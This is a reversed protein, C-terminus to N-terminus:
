ANDCMDQYRKAFESYETEIKVIDNYNMGPDDWLESYVSMFENYTLSEHIITVSSVGTHEYSLWLSEVAREENLVETVNDKNLRKTTTFAFTVRCYKKHKTEKNTFIDNLTIKYTPM